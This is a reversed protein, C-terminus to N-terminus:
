QAQYWNIFEDWQAAQFWKLNDYGAGISYGPAYVAIGFANDYEEPGYWGGQGNGHRNHIVLSGSIYTMLAAGKTKVAQDRSADSVLKVLHYLDKNDSIAFAQASSLATKVIAKDGAAMVAKVWDNTLATFQAIAASKVVSQTYGQKLKAYHDSYANVATKALEEAGMTPKAVVPKLFDNYTYGDGPETEESSVIYEINDKIEYAVEAMQMLCADAGYVDLKGVQALAQGLQPTNIHNGSQEDYSIGKTVRAKLNKEWGSGHNWMILMYKNAPYKSKAWKTFAPVQNWDGMDLEGMDQVVPSSIKKTDNDKTVLYRRVGKWDGDTSDYGAIRGMQVVINVKDSSGIMEMENMDYMGFKELDNKSNLFVMITWEKGKSAGDGFIWSWLGKDAPVAAPAVVPVPLEIGTGSIEDALSNRGPNDFNIEAFASVTMTLAIAAMVIKKFM